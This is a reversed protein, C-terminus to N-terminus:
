QSQSLGTIPYLHVDAHNFFSRLKPRERAAEEVVCSLAWPRELVQLSLLSSVISFTEVGGAVDLRVVVRRWRTSPGRLDSSDQRDEARPPQTEHFMRTSPKVMGAFEVRRWVRFTDQSVCISAKVMGAPSRACSSMVPACSSMDLPASRRMAQEFSSM